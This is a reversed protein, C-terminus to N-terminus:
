VPSRAAEFPRGFGQWESNAIRAREHKAVLDRAAALSQGGDRGHANMDKLWDELIPESAKRRRELEAPSLTVVTNGRGRV